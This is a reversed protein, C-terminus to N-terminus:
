RLSCLVTFWLWEKWCDVKIHGERENCVGQLFFFHEFHGVGMFSVPKLFLFFSVQLIKNAHGSFQHHLIERSFLAYFWHNFSYILVGAEREVRSLKRCIYTNTTYCNNLYSHWRMSFKRLVGWISEFSEAKRMMNIKSIPLHYYLIYWSVPRAWFLCWEWFYFTPRRLRPGLARTKRFAQSARKM